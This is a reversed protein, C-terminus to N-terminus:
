RDCGGERAPRVGPKALDTTGNCGYPNRGAVMVIDRYDAKALHRWQDAPILAAAVIREPLPHHPCVGSYMWM